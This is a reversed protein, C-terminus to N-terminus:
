IDKGLTSHKGMDMGNSSGWKWSDHMANTRDAGAGLPSYQFGPKNGESWTLNESRFYTRQGGDYDNINDNNNDDYVKWM